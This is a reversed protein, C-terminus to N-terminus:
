VKIDLRKPCSLCVRAWPRFSMRTTGGIGAVWVYSGEELSRDVGAVATTRLNIVIIRVDEDAGTFIGDSAELTFVLLTDDGVIPAQFLAVEGNANILTVPPGSVQTWRYSVIPGVVSFTLSGDLLAPAEKRCLM